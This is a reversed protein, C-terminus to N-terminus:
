SPGELGSLSSPITLSQTGAAQSWSADTSSLTLVPLSAQYLSKSHAPRCRSSSLGGPRGSKLITTDPSPGWISSVCLKAVM